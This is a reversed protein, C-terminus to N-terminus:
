GLLEIFTIVSQVRLRADSYIMGLISDFEGTAVGGMVGNWRIGSENRELQGWQQDEPNFIEYDFNLVDAAAQLMQLDYGSHNTYM